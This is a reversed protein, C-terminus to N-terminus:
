TMVRQLSRDGLNTAAIHPASSHPVFLAGYAFITGNYGSMVSDIIPQAVLTFVQSQQSAQDFVQDFTFQKADDAAADTKPNRLTVQRSSGDLTVIEKRNDSIEKSNLPRCRVMVQVTESKSAM